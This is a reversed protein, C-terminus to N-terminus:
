GTNQYFGIRLRKVKTNSFTYELQVQLFNISLGTGENNKGSCPMLHSALARSNQCWTTIDTKKRLFNVFIVQSM